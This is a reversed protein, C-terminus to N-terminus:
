DAIEFDEWWPAAFLLILWIPGILIGTAIKVPVAAEEWDEKLYDLAIGLPVIIFGAVAKTIMRLLFLITDLIASGLEQIEDLM